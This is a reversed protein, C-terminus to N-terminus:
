PGISLFFLFSGTFVVPKALNELFFSVATATYAMTDTGHVVVFGDFDAYWAALATAISRWEPLSVAASDRLAPALETFRFLVREHKAHKEANRPTVCWDSFPGWAALGSTNSGGTLSSFHTYRFIM